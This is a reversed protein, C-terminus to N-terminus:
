RLLRTTTTRATGGGPQSLEVYYEFAHEEDPIPLSFEFPHADDVMSAWSQGARYHLTASTIQKESAQLWVFANTERRGMSIMMGTVNGLSTAQVRHSEASLPKTAQDFYSDHLRTFVPMEEVVLATLGRPSIPVTLRGDIAAITDSVKGDHWVRVRYRKGVSYPLYDRNLQIEAQSRRPSENALALYFNGNGYGSLYNIQPDGISVIHKPMWLRVGSDGYFTGPRDGYVKSQLYAYGQAYRSPFTIEHKSRVEVDSVLYDVLLAIHPWVHNYYVQNYSFAGFLRRPYDARAYVDSFEVNIDYGPYNAYRGIVASRAVARLFPDNSADAVRLFYAAYHALLVAPNGQFTTSAEPTLGIQSVRWAPLTQEPTRMHFNRGRYGWGIPAKNDLDVTVSGAPPTPYLWCFSAYREAGRTAADLYRQDGTEEYLEFLDVWKPAFDTWFQGGTEVHVDTFDTQPTDIREEVYADALQRATDLYRQEGTLRYLALNNQFTNTESVMDLNLARPTKAMELAYRHFVPSRERTVHFLEALESVEASPGNMNHSAGQGEIHTAESFLYKERSMLYETVPLARRRYIAPDDRLLAVSLPHLASVVKVTGEVDSAYDFGKLDPVWGSYQDDMAFDIMNTITDNLSHETNERLDRFDFLSKAIHQFAAYWNGNVLVPRMRFAFARGAEMRSGAKGFLPAFVMPQAGGAPNRLMLGFRSNDINPLRYPSEAPDTALGLTAGNRSVLTAPLTAMFEATLLPARPFRKEQWVLPQWFGEATPPDTEPAGTYGITYWGARKPTFRFSLIPEKGDGAPEITAELAFDDRAPFIWEIAGTSTTNASAAEVTQVTGAEFLVDTRGESGQKQWSPLAYAEPDTMQTRRRPDSFARTMAMEPDADARIVTFRPRFREKMPGRTVEVSRDPLPRISYASEDASLLAMSAVLLTVVLSATM